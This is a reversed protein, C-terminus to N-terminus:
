KSSEIHKRLLTTVSLYEDKHLTSGKKYNQEKGSIFNALKKEEKNKSLNSPWRKNFYVFRKLNLLKDDFKEKRLIDLSKMEIGWEEFKSKLLVNLNNYKKKWYMIKIALYSKHSRKHAQEARPLNGYINIFRDILAIYTEDDLHVFPCNFTYIDEISNYKDILSVVIYKEDNNLESIDCIYSKFMTKIKALIDNTLKKKDINLDSLSGENNSIYKEIDDKNLSNIKYIMKNIIKILTLNYNQTNSHKLNSKISNINVGIMNLLILAKKEIQRIRERSVNYLNGLEQLTYTNTGFLRSKIIEGNRDSALKIEYTKDNSNINLPVNTNIANKFAKMYQIDNTIDKANFSLLKQNIIDKDIIEDIILVAKSLRKEKNIVKNVKKTYISLNKAIEPCKFISKNYDDIVKNIKLYQMNLTNSIYKKDLNLNNKFLIKILEGSPNRLVRLLYFQNKSNKIIFMDNEELEKSLTEVLSGDNKSELLNIVPYNKFVYQTQNGSIRFLYHVAPNFVIEGNFGPLYRELISFEDDLLQTRKIYPLITKLYPSKDRWYNTPCDDRSFYKIIHIHKKYYKNM